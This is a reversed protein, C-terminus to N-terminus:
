VKTISNEGIDATLLDSLFDCLIITFFTGEEDITRALIPRSWVLYHPQAIFKAALFCLIIPTEFYNGRVRRLMVRTQRSAQGM